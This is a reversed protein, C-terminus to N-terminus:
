ALWVWTASGFDLSYITPLFFFDLALVSLVTATLGAGLGAYWSSVLVAVLFLVSSREFGRLALTVLLALGVSAVAIGYRIVFPQQPRDVDAGMCTEIYWGRLSSAGRGSSEVGTRFSGSRFTVAGYAGTSGAEGDGSAIYRPM